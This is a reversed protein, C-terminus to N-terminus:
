EIECVSERIKAEDVEAASQRNRITGLFFIKRDLLVARLQRYEGIARQARAIEGRDELRSAVDDRLRSRQERADGRLANAVAPRPDADVRSEIM